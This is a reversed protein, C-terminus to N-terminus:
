TSKSRIVNRSCLVDDWIKAVLLHRRLQNRFSVKPSEGVLRGLAAILARPRHELCYENWTSATTDGTLIWTPRRPAFTSLSIIPGTPSVLTIRQDPLWLQVFHGGLSGAADDAVSTSAMLNVNLRMPGLCYQPNGLTDSEPRRFRINDLDGPPLLALAIDLCSYLTRPNAIIAGAFSRKGKSSVRCIRIFRQVTPLECFHGNVQLRTCKKGRRLVAVIFKSGVPHELLVPVGRRLWDNAVEEGARGGIAVVAADVPAKVEDVSTVLPIGYQICVERSRLSGQAIVAVLLYRRRCRVIADIWARGFGTGCVVIRLPQKM